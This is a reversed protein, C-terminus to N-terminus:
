RLKPVLANALAIATPKISEATAGTPVDMQITFHHTGTWVMVEAWMNRNSRFFATDGVGAVAQWEKGPSKRLGDARAFPNVQLYIGGYQCGSGHTGILDEEPPLLLHAPGNPNSSFKTVLERTLLTCARIAPKGATAGAPAQSAAGVSTLCVVALLSAVTLRM